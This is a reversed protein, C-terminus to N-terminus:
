REWFIENTKLYKTQECFCHGDRSGVTTVLSSFSALTKVTRMDQAAILLIENYKQSVM